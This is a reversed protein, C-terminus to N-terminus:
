AALTLDGAAAPHISYVCWVCLIADFDGKIMRSLLLKNKAKGSIGILKGALPNTSMEVVLISIERECCSKM